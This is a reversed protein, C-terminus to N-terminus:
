PLATRRQRSSVIPTIKDCRRRTRYSQGWNTLTFRHRQDFTNAVVPCGGIEHRSPGGTLSNVSLGGGDGRGFCTICLPGIRVSRLLRVRHLYRRVLGVTRGTLSLIAPPKRAPECHKCVNPLSIPSPWPDAREFLTAIVVDSTTLTALLQPSCTALATDSVSLDSLQALLLADSSVVVLPWM